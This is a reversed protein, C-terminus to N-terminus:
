KLAVEIEKFLITGSSPPSTGKNILNKNKDFLLYHPISFADIGGWILTTLEDRLLKSARVHNGSLKNELIIKRWLIDEPEKDFSVYIIEAGNKNLFGYLSNSFKFEQFCPNCWTAWLDIFVPKGKFVDLLESISAIESYNDVIKIKSSDAKVSGLIKNSKLEPRRSLKNKFKINTALIFTLFFIRLISFILLKIM